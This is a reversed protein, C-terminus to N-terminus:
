LISFWAMIVGQQKGAACNEQLIGAPTTQSFLFSTTNLINYLWELLHCFNRIAHKFFTESTHIFNGQRAGIL